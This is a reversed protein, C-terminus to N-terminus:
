RATLPSGSQSSSAKAIRSGVHSSESCPRVMESTVSATSFARKRHREPLPHIGPIPAKGILLKHAPFCVIM